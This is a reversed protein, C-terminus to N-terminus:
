RFQKTKLGPGATFLRNPWADFWGHSAEPNEEDRQQPRCAAIVVRPVYADGIPRETLTAAKQTLAVLAIRLRGGFAGRAEGFPVARDPLDARGDATHGLALFRVFTGNPRGAGVVTQAQVRELLIGLRRRKPALEVEFAGVRSDTNVAITQQGAEIRRARFRLLAHVSRASRARVFTAEGTAGLIGIAGLALVAARELANRVRAGHLETRFVLAL